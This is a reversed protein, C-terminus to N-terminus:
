QFNIRINICTCTNRMYIITYMSFMSVLIGGIIPDPIAVFIAGFKGLLALILMICAAAQIVRRSGVQRYYIFIFRKIQWEGIYDLMLIFIM